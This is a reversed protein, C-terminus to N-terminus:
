PKYKSNYDLVVKNQKEFQELKPWQASKPQSGLVKSM